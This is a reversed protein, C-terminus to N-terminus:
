GYKRWVYDTDKELRRRKSRTRDGEDEDEDEDEEEDDEEDDEEEEEAQGPTQTRWSGTTRDFKDVEFELRRGDQEVRIKIADPNGWTQVMNLADNAPVVVSVELDCDFHDFVDDAMFASYGSLCLELGNPKFRFVIGGTQLPSRPEM